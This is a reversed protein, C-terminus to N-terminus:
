AQSLLLNHLLRSAQIGHLGEHETALMSRLMHGVHIHWIGFMGCAMHGHMFLICARACPM